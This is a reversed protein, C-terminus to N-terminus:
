TAVWKDDLVYNDEQTRFVRGVGRDIIGTDDYVVYHIPGSFDFHTWVPNESLNVSGFARGKEVFKRVPMLLGPIRIVAPAAVLGTLFSRRNM